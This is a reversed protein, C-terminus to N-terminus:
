CIRLTHRISSSFPGSTLKPSYIVKEVLGYQVAYPFSRYYRLAGGSLGSKSGYEFLISFAFLLTLPPFKIIFSLNCFAPVINMRSLLFSVNLQRKVRIFPFVCLFNTHLIKELRRVESALNRLVRSIMVGHSRSEFPWRGRWQRSASM